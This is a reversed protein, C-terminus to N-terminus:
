VISNISNWLTAAFKRKSFINDKQSLLYQGIRKRYASCEDPSLSRLYKELEEYSKFDRMDIFCGPPVYDTIDPAGLYVPICGALFSDFIKESVYGPYKSNEFVISFKYSALTKIKDDNVYGRWCRQISSYYHWFPFFPRKDWRGGYLDFDNSRSFVRIARLRESYLEKDFFAHPRANHNMMVLFKDKPVAFFDRFEERFEPPWMIYSVRRPAEEMKHFLFIADYFKLLGALHKYPYPSNTPPEKQLLIRKSFKKCIISFEKKAVAFRKKKSRAYKLFYFPRWFLGVDPHDIFVVADDPNHFAPNWADITEIRVGKESFFELFSGGLAATPSLPPNPRFIKGGLGDPGPPVFYITKVSLTM